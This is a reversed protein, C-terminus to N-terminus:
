SAKMWGVWINSVNVSLSIGITCNWRYPCFLHNSKSRFEIAILCVFCQWVQLHTLGVINDTILKLWQSLIALEDCNIIGTSMNNLGRVEFANSRLKDTGYIYRTVYAMMLPVAFCHIWNQVNKLDFIIVPCLTWGDRRRSPVSLYRVVTIVWLRNGAKTPRWSLVHQMTIPILRKVHCQQTM